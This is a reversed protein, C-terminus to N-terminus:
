AQNAKRQKARDELSLSPDKALAQETTSHGIETMEEKVAKHTADLDAVLLAFAQDDVNAFMTSYQAVKESESGFVQALQAKRAEAKTDAKFKALEATAAEFKVVQDALQTQLGAVTAELTSKETTLSAVLDQLNQVEEASKTVETTITDSMTEEINDQASELSIQNSGQPKNLAFNSLYADFDEVEMIKDVFGVSLAKEADYVSAQTDIVAQASMKRNTAVHNVFSNYSTDVSEQLGDLFSQTFEGSADFPVKNGGAYIFSRKIGMQELYGTDNYLQVVVGVSGVRAMPNAIIEDAIVSWAYAASASTGDVYAIIKVGNETALKRVANASAFARYAEGGGSDVMMVCTKIGEAVQAEFTQKLGEYSTLEVCSRITGARNVLTGEVNLYGIGTNPDIGLEEKRARDYADQSDFAAREIVKPEVKEVKLTAARVPDQLYDTIPQLDELTIYQPKNFVRKILNNLQRKQM